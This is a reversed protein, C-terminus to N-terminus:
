NISLVLGFIQWHPIFVPNRKSYLHKKVLGNASIQKSKQKLWLHQWDQSLSVQDWSLAYLYYPLYFCFSTTNIRLFKRKKPNHPLHTDYAHLFPTYYARWVFKMDYAHSFQMNYARCVFKMDYARLFPTYYARWVFKVDYIHVCFCCIIHVGFFNWIMHMRFSRIIHVGFLNWIMHVCFNRIIHVGFLNWIM